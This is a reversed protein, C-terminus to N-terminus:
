RGAYIKDTITNFEINSSLDTRPENDLDSRSSRKQVKCLFFALITITDFNSSDEFNPFKEMSCFTEDTSSHFVSFFHVWWHFCLGMRPREAEFSKLALIHDTISIGNLSGFGVPPSHTYGKAGSGCCSAPTLCSRPPSFVCCQIGCQQGGLAMHRNIGPSM